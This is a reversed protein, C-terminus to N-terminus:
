HKPITYFPIFEDIESLMEEGYPTLCIGASTTHIAGRMKLYDVESRITRETYGLTNGLQRRGVPQHHLVQRLIQYRIVMIELAEPAFREMISFVHNM